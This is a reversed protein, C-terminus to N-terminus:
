IEGKSNEKILEARREQIKTEAESPQKHIIKSLIENGEIYKESEVKVTFGLETAKARHRISNKKLEEKLSNLVDEQIDKVLLTYNRKQIKKM